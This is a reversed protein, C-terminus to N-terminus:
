KACTGNYRFEEQKKQLEEISCQLAEECLTEITFDQDKGAKKLAQDLKDKFRKQKNVSMM